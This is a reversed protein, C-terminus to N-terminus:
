DELLVLAAPPLHMRVTQGSVLRPQDPRNLLVAKLQMAGACVQYHTEAGTYTTDGVIVPFWNEGQGQHSLVIKEPRVAFTVKAGPGTRGALSRESVPGLMCVSGLGTQVQLPGPANLGSPPLTAELLNCGGLFQAVFRNRPAEYLQEAAGIQEIRGTNMVAIRDSM